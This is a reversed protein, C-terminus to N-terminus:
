YNLENFMHRMLACNTGIFVRIRHYLYAICVIIRPLTSIIMLVFMIWFLRDIYAGIERIKANPHDATFTKFAFAIKIAILDTIIDFNAVLTAASFAFQKLRSTLDLQSWIVCVVFINILFFVGDAGIFYYFNRYSDQSYTGYKPEISIDLMFPMFLVVFMYFARFISSYYLLAGLKTLYIYDKEDQDVGGRYWVVDYMEVPRSEKLM